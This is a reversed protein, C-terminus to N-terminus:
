YLDVAHVRGIKSCFLYGVFIPSVPSRAEGFDAVGYKCIRVLLYPATGVFWREGDIINRQRAHQSPRGRKTRGVKKPLRDCSGDIRPGIQAPAGIVLTEPPNNM